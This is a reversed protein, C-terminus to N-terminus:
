FPKLSNYLPEQAKELLKLMQEAIERTEKQTNNALRLKFFNYFELDNGAMFFTTLAGQPICARAQEPKQGEELRRQYEKICLKNFDKEQENKYPIEFPIKSDRVYRRSMENYSMRHRMIQRAVFIPVTLRFIAYHSKSIQRELEKYGEFEFIACTEPSNRLSDKIGFGGGRIFEFISNHCKRKLLEWLKKPDKAEKNGYSLSAIVSIAHERAEQSEVLIWSNFLQIKKDETSAIAKFKDM